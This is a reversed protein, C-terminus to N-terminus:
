AGVRTGPLGAALRLRERGRPNVWKSFKQTFVTVPKVQPIRPKELILSKKKEKPPEVELSQAASSWDYMARIEELVEVHYRHGMSGSTHLCEVELPAGGEEITSPEAWGKMWTGYTVNFRYLKVRGRQRGLDM